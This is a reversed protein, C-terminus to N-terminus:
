DKRPTPDAAKDSSFIRRLGNWFGKKEPETPPTVTPPPETPQTAPQAARKPKSVRTSASTSKCQPFGAGAYNLNVGCHQLWSEYKSRSKVLDGYQNQLVTLQEQLDSANKKYAQRDTELLAMHQRMLTLQGKLQTVEQRAASEGRRAAMASDFLYVQACLMVVMMTLWFCMAKNRVIFDKLTGEHLLNEQVFPYAIKAMAVLLNWLFM